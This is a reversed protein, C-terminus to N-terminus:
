GKATIELIREEYNLLFILSEAFKDPLNNLDSFEDVVAINFSKFKGNRNINKSLTCEKFFMKHLLEGIQKLAQTRVENKSSKNKLEIYFKLNENQWQIGYKEFNFDNKGFMIEYHLFANGHTNGLKGKSIKESNLLRDVQEKVLNMRYRQFVGKLKLKHLHSKLNEIDILNLSQKEFQDVIVKLDTLYNKWIVLLNYVHGSNKSSYKLVINLLGLVENTYTINKFHKIKKNKSDTLSLDETEKFLSVILGEKAEPHNDAYKKIQSVLGGKHNSMHLGTKFKSEIIITHESRDTIYLDVSQKELLYTSPLSKDYSFLEHEINNSQCYELLLKLMGTHFKEKDTLQISTFPNKLLNEIHKKM